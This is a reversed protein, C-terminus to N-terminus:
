RKDFKYRDRKNSYECRRLFDHLMALHYDTILSNM